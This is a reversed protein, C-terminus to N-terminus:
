RHRPRPRRPGRRRTLQGDAAKAALRRARPPAREGTEIFGLIQPEEGHLRRPLLQLADHVETAGPAWREERVLRLLVARAARRRLNTDRRVLHVVPVWRTGSPAHPVPDGTDIPTSARRQIPFWTGLLARGSRAPVGARTTGASLPPPWDYAGHVPSPSVRTRAPLDGPLTASAGFRAVALGYLPRLAVRASNSISQYRGASRPLAREAARFRVASTRGHAVEIDHRGPGDPDHAHQETSGPSPRTRRLSSASRQPPM